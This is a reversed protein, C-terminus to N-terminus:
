KVGGLILMVGVFLLTMAATFLLAILATKANDSM